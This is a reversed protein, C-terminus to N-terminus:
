THDDEEDSSTEYPDYIDELPTEVDDYEAAWDAFAEDDWQGAVLEPSPEDAAAGRPESIRVVSTVFRLAEDALVGDDCWTGVEISARSASTWNASGLWVRLPKLRQLYGYDWEVEYAVALVLLKAHLLPVFKGIKTNKRWGVVRVADLHREGPMGEPRIWPPEGTLQSPGLEELGLLPQWLGRGEELLRKSREPKASKDLIICQQGVGLLAGIVKEDDLWPVCGIAVPVAMARAPFRDHVMQPFAAIGQALAEIVNVGVSITGCRWAHPEETWGALESLPKFSPAEDEEM